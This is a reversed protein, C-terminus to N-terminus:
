VAAIAEGVAVEPKRRRLFPLGLGSLALTGLILSTPEPNATFALNVKFDKNAASSGFVTLDFDVVADQGQLIQGGGGLLGGVTLAAGGPIAVPNVGLNDVEVAFKDSTVINNGLSDGFGASGFGGIPPTVSAAITLGNIPKLNSNHVTLHFHYTDAFSGATTHKLTYTAGFPNHTNLNTLGLNVNHTTNNVTASTITGNAAGTVNTLTINGATNVIFDAQAANNFGITGLAVAMMFRVLKM